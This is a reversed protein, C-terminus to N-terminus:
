RNQLVASVYILDNFPDDNPTTGEVGHSSFLERGPLQTPHWGQGTLYEVLNSREGTFVLAAMDLDLGHTRWTDILDRTQQAGFPSFDPLYESALASGSASMATINDVLRDQAAPPLYVLLGEASWV